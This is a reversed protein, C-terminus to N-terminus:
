EEGSNNLFDAAEKAQECKPCAENLQCQQADGVAIMSEIWCVLEGFTQNEKSIINLVQIDWIDGHGEVKYMAWNLLLALLEQRALDCMHAPEEPWLIDYASDFTLNGFEPLADDECLQDLHLKNIMGLMEQLQEQSKTAFQKWFEVTKFHETGAPCEVCEIFIGSLVANLWGYYDIKITYEGPPMLFKHYIGCGLADYVSENPPEGGPGLQPPGDPYTRYKDYSWALLNGELDYFKIKQQKPKRYQTKCYEWDAAYFSVIYCGRLASCNTQPLNLYVYLDTEGIESGPIERGDDYCSAWSAGPLLNNCHEEPVTDPGRLAGYSDWGSGLSSAYSPTMKKEPDINNCACQPV